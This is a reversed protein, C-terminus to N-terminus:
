QVHCDNAEPVMKEEAYDEDVGYSDWLRRAQSGVQAFKLEWWHAEKLRSSTPFGCGDLKKMLGYITDRQSQDRTAAWAVGLGSLAHTAGLPKYPLSRETLNIVDDLLEGHSDVLSPTEPTIEQLIRNVLLCVTTAMSVQTIFERFFPGPSDPPSPSGSQDSPFLMDFYQHIKVRDESSQKYILLLDAYNAVPDRIAICM